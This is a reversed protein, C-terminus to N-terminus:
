TRAVDYLTWWFIARDMCATKGFAHVRWLHSPPWLASICNVTGRYGANHEAGAGLAPSGLIFGGVTHWRTM